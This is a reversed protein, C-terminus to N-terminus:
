GVTQSYRGGANVAVSDGLDPIGGRILRLSEQLNRRNDFQRVINQLTLRDASKLDEIAKVLAPIARVINDVITIQAAVATRSLPNLDIAIVTKGMKALAETRDGDELPVLVTDAYYIGQPDVVRRHSNLEPITAVGNRGTGLISQAGNVRLEQEIAQQREKTWYFLNIEIAAGALKSLSVIEKACLAAANGNVSIVPKKALLLAAASAVIAAQATETTKEGILYDFAEGRGHAILGEPALIGKKLGSVVLERTYLSVARPHDPPIAGAGLIDSGNGQM